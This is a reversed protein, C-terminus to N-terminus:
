TDECLKFDLFVSDHSFESNSSPFFVIKQLSFFGCIYADYTFVSTMQPQKQLEENIHVPQKWLDWM